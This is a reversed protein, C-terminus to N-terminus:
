AAATSSPPTGTDQSAQSKAAQSRRISDMSGTSGTSGTVKAADTQNMPTSPQGPSCMRDGEWRQGCWCVGAANIMCTGSGCCREDESM